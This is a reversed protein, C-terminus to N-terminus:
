LWRSFDEIKFYSVNGRVSINNTGKNLVIKTLDGVVKRNLFNGSSDVANGDRNFTVTQDNLTIIITMVGNIYLRIIGSGRLTIVPKSVVNGKNILDVEFGRKNSNSKEYYQQLYDYKFPQVHYSVEATKFRCLRQYDVQEYCAMKYYKDAENSYVINGDQTLYSIVEDVNYDGYLGITMTKDYASYGLPTVIDGDRGDIEETKIRVDAKTIPPLSQVLLGTVTYSPVDNIIVYPRM